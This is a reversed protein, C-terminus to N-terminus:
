LNKIINHLHRNDDLPSTLDFTVKASSLVQDDEGLGDAIVERQGGTNFKFSFTWNKGNITATGLPFTLSNLPSRLNVNKVDGSLSGKFNVINELNLDSGKTPSSITVSGTPDDEISELNITILDNAIEKNNIDFGEAIIQRDGGLTFQNSM